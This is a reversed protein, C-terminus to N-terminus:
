VIIDYEGSPTTSARPQERAVALLRQARELCTVLWTGVGPSSLWRALTPDRHVVPLLAQQILAADGRAIAAVLNAPLHEMMARLHADSDTVEGRHMAHLGQLCGTIGDSPMTAAATPVQPGGNVSTTPLAPASLPQRELDGPIGVPPAGRLSAIISATASLASGIGGWEGGDRQAAVEAAQRILQSQVEQSATMVQKLSDAQLTSAMRMSEAQVRFFDTLEERKGHSDLLKLVLPDPQGLKALAAAVLPDASATSRGAAMEKLVQMLM